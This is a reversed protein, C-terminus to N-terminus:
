ESKIIRFTKLYFNVFFLFFISMLVIILVSHVIPFGCPNYFFLLTSHLIITVFQLLQLSTLYKKFFLCKKQETIALLYYTYMIVHVFTNLLAGLTEHGTSAYKCGYWSFIPMIGHHFVHLTSINSFKMQTIFFFTDFFETFKSIFYWWIVKSMNDGNETNDIPECFFNYKAWELFLGYFMWGSFLIQFLNYLIIIKKLNLKKKILKPTTGVVSLYFFTLFLTPYVNAMLPWENINVKM